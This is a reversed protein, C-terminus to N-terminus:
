LSQLEKCRIFNRFRGWEYSIQSLLLKPDKICSIYFIFYVQSITGKKTQETSSPLLSELADDTGDVAGTTQFARPNFGVFYNCTATMNTPLNIGGPGLFNDSTPDSALNVIVTDDGIGFNILLNSLAHCTKKSPDGNFQALAPKRFDINAEVLIAKHTLEPLKMVVTPNSKHSASPKLASKLVSSSHKPSISPKLTTSPLTLVDANRKSNNSSSILQNTPKSTAKHTSVLSPAKPSPTVAAIADRKTKKKRPAANQSGSSAQSISDDM